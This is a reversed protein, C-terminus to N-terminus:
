SKRLYRLLVVADDFTRAEALSLELPRGLDAFLPSGGGLAVPNISLWYKDIFDLRM